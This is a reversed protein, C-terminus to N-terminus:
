FRGFLFAGRAGVGVSVPAPEDLVWAAVGLAVAAVGVGIASYGLADTAASAADFDSRAADRAAEDEAEDFRARADDKDSQHVVAGVYLGGALAASAAAGIWLAESATWGGSEVPHGPVPAVPRCADGLRRMGQIAAKRIEDDGSETAVRRYLGHAACRDAADRGREIQEYATALNFIILPREGQCQPREVQAQGVDIVMGWARERLAPLMADLCAPGSPAALAVLLAPLSVPM